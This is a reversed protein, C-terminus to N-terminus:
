LMFRTQLMKLNQVFTVLDVFKLDGSFNLKQRKHVPILYCTLVTLFTNITDVYDAAFLNLQIDGRILSFVSFFEFKSCLSFLEHFLLHKRQNLFLIDKDLVSVDVM